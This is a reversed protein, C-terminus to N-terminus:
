FLIAAMALQKFILHELDQFIEPLEMMNACVSYPMSFSAQYYIKGLEFFLIAVM